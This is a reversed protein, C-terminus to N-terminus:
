SWIYRWNSQKPWLVTLNFTSDLSIRTIIEWVLLLWVDSNRAGAKLIFPQKEEGSWKSSRQYFFFSFAGPALKKDDDQRPRVSASSGKSCPGQGRMSKSLTFGSTYSM